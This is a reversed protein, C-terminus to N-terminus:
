QVVKEHSKLLLGQVFLDQKLMVKSPEDMGVRRGYSQEFLAEFNHAYEDVSEMPRQKRRILQASLLAESKVPQLRHGLAEVAKSFSTKKEAPLVEYLQEARGSLYLELQLLKEWKTWRELEAHRALKKTWREFAGDESREGSFRPIAPLTVKRPATISQVGPRSEGVQEEPPEESMPQVPTASASAVVAPDAKGDQLVTELSAVKAKLLQILDDRIKLEQSHVRQMEARLSERAKLAELESQARLQELEWERRDALDNAEDLQGQLDGVLEPVHGRDALGGEKEVATLRDKTAALEEKSEALAQSAGELELKTAELEDALREEEILKAEELRDRDARADEVRRESEGLLRKLEEIRQKLQSKTESKSM